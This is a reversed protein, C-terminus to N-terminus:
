SVILDRGLSVGLDHLENELKEAGILDGAQRLVAVRKRIAEDANRRIRNKERIAFEIIKLEELLEILRGSSTKIASDAAFCVALREGRRTIAYPGHIGVGTFNRKGGTIQTTAVEEAVQMGKPLLSPHALIATAKGRSTITVSCKNEHVYEVYQALKDKVLKASSREPIRERPYIKSRPAIKLPPKKAQAM